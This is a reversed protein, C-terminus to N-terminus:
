SSLRQGKKSLKLAPLTVPPETRKPKPETKNVKNPELPPLLSNRRKAQKTKEPVIEKITEEIVIDNIVESEPKVTAEDNANDVKTNNNEDTNEVSMKDLKAEIATVTETNDTLQLSKEKGELFSKQKKMMIMSIEQRKAVQPAPSSPQITVSPTKLPRQLSPTRPEKMPSNPKSDDLTIVRRRLLALSNKAKRERTPLPTPEKVPEPEPEDVRGHIRPLWTKKEPFMKNFKQTNNFVLNDFLNKNETVLSKAKRERVHAPKLFEVMRNVEHHLANLTYKKDLAKSFDKANALSHNRLVFKYAIRKQLNNVLRNRVREYKMNDYNQQKEFYMLKKNILKNELSNLIKVKHLSRETFRLSNMYQSNKGFATAADFSQLKNHVQPM